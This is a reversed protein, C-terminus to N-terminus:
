LKLKPSVEDVLLHSVPAAMVLTPAGGWETLHLEKIRWFGMALYFDVSEGYYPSMASPGLTLLCISGIDASRAANAVERILTRGLGSRRQPAAVAIYTIEISEAFSSKTAVFAVVQDNAIAVFGKQHSTAARVDELAGPYSFWEPLSRVVEVCSPADASKLARIQYRSALSQNM